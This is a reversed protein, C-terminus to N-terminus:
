EKSAMVYMQASLPRFPSLLYLRILIPWKPLWSKMSFPLLGPVLKTIRLGYGTLFGPINEDSFITQHTVDDFYRDKCLRYNPQILVLRGGPKLARCIVPLLRDHERPSLHELFNSAFILDVSGEELAELNMADGIKLTVDKGSFQQMDPNLDYGIKTYSPFQNIFDCYGPGLEVLTEVPGTDRAVYRVIEKWVGQRYKLYPYRGKYHHNMNKPTM